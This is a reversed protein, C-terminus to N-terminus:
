CRQCVGSLEGNCVELFYLFSILTKEGESLTKFVETSQAPRRLRYLPVDGEEKILEFGKLGLIRLWHNINDVSQDVNTTAARAAAIIDQQAKVETRITLIGSKATERKETLLREKMAFAALYPECVNMFWIWFRMKISDLHIQKNAIKTNFEDVKKQEDSIANNILGILESTSELAVVTSPNSVKNAIAQINKQFIARLSAVYIQISAIDYIPAEGQFIFQTVADTYRQQITILSSLRKEYTQDFVKHVEAYFNEPLPQQCLPCQDKSHVAFKLSQKVWDSNGLEQILRSLYSDGAGVIVEALIPDSEIDAGEFKLCPIDPLKAGSPDQLQAAEVLLGEPTDTTSALAVQSVADLLRDKTNLRSFCYALAGNDFPGKHKWIEDKLTNRADDLAARADTGAVMFEDHAITLSKIAAEAGAIAKDAEINDKNLTFVGPQSATEHFNKEMFTHNYVLIERDANRPELLCQNFRADSPAQMFNSITTKGAGNQGYFLNVRRLNEIPVTSTPSYSSVNRLLIRNIMILKLIFAYACLGIGLNASKDNLSRKPLVSAVGLTSLLMFHCSVHDCRGEMVVLTSIANCRCNGGHTRRGAGRMLKSQMHRTFATLQGSLDSPSFAM